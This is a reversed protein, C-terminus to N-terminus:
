HLCKLPFVQIYLLSFHYGTTHASTRSCVPLHLFSAFISNPQSTILSVEVSIPLISPLIHVSPKCSQQFSTLHSEKKEETFCCPLDSSSLSPVSSLICLTSFNAFLRYLLSTIQGSFSQLDTTPHSELNSNSKNDYM